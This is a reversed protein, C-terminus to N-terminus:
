QIRAMESRQPRDALVHAPLCYADALNHLFNCEEKFLLTDLKWVIRNRRKSVRHAITFLNLL